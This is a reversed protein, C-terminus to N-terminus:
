LGLQLMMKTLEDNGNNRNNNSNNNSNNSNNGNNNSNSSSGSSSSSSSNSNSNSNNNNRNNNNNQALELRAGRLANELENYIYDMMFEAARIEAREQKALISPFRRVLKDVAKYLQLINVFPDESVRAGEVIEPLARSLQIAVAVYNPPPNPTLGVQFIAYLVRKARLLYQYYENEIAQNEYLANLNNRHTIPKPRRPLPGTQLRLGKRALQKAHRSMRSTRRKRTRAM